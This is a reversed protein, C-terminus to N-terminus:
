SCLALNQQAILSECNRNATDVAAERLFFIIFALRQGMKKEKTKM